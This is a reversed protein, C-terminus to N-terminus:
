RYDTLNEPQMSHPAVAAALEADSPLPGWVFRFGFPIVIDALGAQRLSGAGSDDTTLILRTM